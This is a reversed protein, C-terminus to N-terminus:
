KKPSESGKGEENFIIFSGRSGGMQNANYIFEANLVKNIQEKIKTLHATSYPDIKGKSAKTCKDVSGRIKRLQMMALNSIPKNVESFSRGPVYLSILRDLHEQQLNRRLSSIMPNRASHPKEPAAKLESWIAAELSDFLEPLTVADQDAPTRFENDYVQRLTTPNMLMSLTSAQIGMIRDHIPWAAEDSFTMFRNSDLWNDASLRVLLEPTLGFASDNFSNDIFFNLADRQTKADVVEIPARGNPDGKKDRNIHAGGLWNAMMSVSRTQLSLTLEYGWRAKSWSDGKEVFEELLRERHHKAIIMQNKAYDLPNKSFDYRRALPDPGWTDEDTAYALEPEAVRDLIPKLNTSTTYGYEIAWMDYPGIGIMTSDGKPKGDSGMNIPLYDMVSGALPKVGKLKDSNIDALSYVSSSKFNHRLGLTHGVEHAVLEALLPGVFEEPMGDLLSKPKPKPTEKKEEPKAEAKKEDDSDDAKDDDKADDGKDDETKDADDKKGKRKKNRDNKALLTYAMRMMAIDFAKGQSALCLGNVQSTRGVLGDFQDDGILTNDVQGLPHGSFPQHQLKALQQVVSARRAPSTLRVRPDWRPHQALWALTEPNMMGEMAIKPLIDDFQYRYHRIWGDTLIIDADLIEGTMPNVRSPGIATGIDNNLWRVFNWRVDEPDKDMNRGTASDQYDVEIANSFGIKEFAKNWYLIGQRVWRRYRVPTTHEIYFVIPKAPPSIALSPDRKELHWRNIYRTRTEEDSYKGLDDYATTFYGIREDAPRPRYKPNSRINSISYHLTKLRGSSRSSMGHSFFSIASGSTPVEFAVEINDSFAKAKTIRVLSSNLPRPFFFRTAQGVLLYNMDIVPGGSPGITIIPIDLILRDTFLRKVSNRSEPDGTSRTSINPEMLALRKDYRRWYVYMEGNQLGAMREGSAVTMAIYHRQSAYGSPLEAYMRNDKRRIWLTYFSRKNDATSVVKEFGNLVASYPPFDPKPATKTTQASLSSVGVAIAAIALISLKLTRRM